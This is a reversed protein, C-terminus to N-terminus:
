RDFQPVVLAHARQVIALSFVSCNHLPCCLQVIALPAQEAVTHWEIFFRQVADHVLLWHVETELSEVRLIRQLCGKIWRPRDDFYIAHIRLFDVLQNFFAVRTDLGPYPRPCNTGAPRPLSYRIGVPARMSGANLCM